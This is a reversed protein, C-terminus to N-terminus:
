GQLNLGIAAGHLARALDIERELGAISGVAGYRNGAEIAAAAEDAKAAAAKLTDRLAVINATIAPNIEKTM